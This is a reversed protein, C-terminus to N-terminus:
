SDVGTISGLHPSHEGSSIKKDDWCRYVTMGPYNILFYRPRSVWLNEDRHWSVCYTEDSTLSRKWGRLRSQKSMRCSVNTEIQDWPIVPTVLASSFSIISNRNNRDTRLHCRGTSEQCFDNEPRAVRQSEVVKEEFVLVFFGFSICFQLAAENWLAIMWGNLLHKHINMSSEWASEWHKALFGM